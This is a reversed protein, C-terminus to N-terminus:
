CQGPQIPGVRIRASALSVRMASITASIAPSMAHDRAYAFHGVPEARRKILRVAGPGASRSNCVTGLQKVSRRVLPFRAGHSDLDEFSRSPAPHPRHAHRVAGVIAAGAHVFCRVLRGNPQNSHFAQDLPRDLQGITPGAEIRYAIVPSPM